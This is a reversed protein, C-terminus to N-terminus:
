CGVKWNTVTGSLQRWSGKRENTVRSAVRVRTQWGFAVKRAAKRTLGGNQQCWKRERSGGGIWGRGLVIREALLDRMRMYKALRDAM